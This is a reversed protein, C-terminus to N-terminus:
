PQYLLGCCNELYLKNIIHPRQKNDLISILMCTIKELRHYSLLIEQLFVNIGGFARTDGKAPSLAESIRCLFKCSIMSVEDIFLYDVGEWM